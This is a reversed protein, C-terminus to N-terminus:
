IYFNEKPAKALYQFNLLYDFLLLPQKEHFLQVVKLQLFLHITLLNKNEDFQQDFRFVGDTVLDLVVRSKNSHRGTRIKRIMTGKTDISSPVSRGLRTDMFDFVVRPNDGKLAFAKPLWPGNLHFVVSERNGDKGHFVVKEILGDAAHLSGFFLSFFMLMTLSFIIRCSKM